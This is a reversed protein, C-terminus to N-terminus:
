IDDYLDIDESTEQECTLDLIIESETPEFDAEEKETKFMAAEKELRDTIEGLSGCLETVQRMASSVESIGSTIENASRSVELSTGSVVEIASSVGVSAEVMSLSGTTVKGTITKLGEMTELIQKGGINLEGMNMSIEELSQSVGHVEHDIDEFAKETEKGSISAIEIKDVIEKLVGSIQKSNSASAFALKRIEDAVVAFGKGANGAHAAEIAANMALLNTQSSIQQIITAMGKIQDLNDNIEAIVNITAGLKEGGDIATKVLVDTASKKKMTIENVNNVSSIMETVAATSEEVMESQEKVYHE